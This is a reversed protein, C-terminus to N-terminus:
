EEVKEFEVAWLRVQLSDSTTMKNIRCFLDIYAMQSYGGEALADELSINWLREQWARKIRLHAFTSSKDLMRTRAQHVTGVRVRCGHPWLRRTQTKMGDQIMPVHEQKFLIM